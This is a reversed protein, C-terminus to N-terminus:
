VYHRIEAIGQLMYVAMTDTSAFLGCLLNQVAKTTRSIQVSSKSVSSLYIIYFVQHKVDVWNSGPKSVMCWDLIDFYTEVFIDRIYIIIYYYICIYIYVIYLSYIYITKICWFLKHLFRLPSFAQLTCSIWVTWYRDKFQLGNSQPM